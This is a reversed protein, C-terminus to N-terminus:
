CRVSITTYRWARVGEPWPEDWRAKQVLERLFDGADPIKEWVDPLFTARKGGAAILVGDIGPRLAEAVTDLSEAPVEELPSLVSVEVSLDQLEAETLPSFRPDEFAAGRANRAVDRWLARRRDLSGICGLLKTGQQLTVFSAGPSRLQDPVESDDLPYPESQRLEHEIARRALDILWQLQDDSVPQLPRLAFSGYGVVRSPDGATDASTSLDLLRPALGHGIAASLLGGIPLCGCADFPGIDGARCELIASATARDRNRAAEDDLYHSLDSSVVIATAEDGWAADVVRAVDRVAARGVVLPVVPVAGFLRQVFPLHVEVSHEPAHASDATTVGPLDALRDCSERDVEVEGLPTAWSGATSLGVGDLRVRHAPGVIVVRKVQDKRAALARYAFGATAGSYRYGAHPAIVAKSLEGDSGPVEGLYGDVEDRLAGPDSPYFVGAVAAPRVGGAATTSM